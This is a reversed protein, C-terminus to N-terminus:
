IKCEDNQITATGKNVPKGEKIDLFRGSINGQFVTIICEISRENERRAAAAPVRAAGDV